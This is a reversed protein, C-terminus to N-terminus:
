GIIDVVSVKAFQSIIDVDTKIFPSQSVSGVVLVKLETM